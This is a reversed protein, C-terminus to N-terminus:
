DETDDFPEDTWRWSATGDAHVHLLFEAVPRGDPFLLTLDARIRDYCADFLEDDGAELAQEQDAFVARFEDFAPLPEVDAFTWPMDAGTVTLRAVDRDGHRLLWVSGDTLHPNAM